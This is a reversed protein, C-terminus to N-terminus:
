KIWCCWSIGTTVKHTWLCYNNHDMPVVACHLTCDLPVSFPLKRRPTSWTFSSVTAKLAQQPKSIWVPQSTIQSTVQRTQSMNSSRNKNPKTQNNKLKSGKDKQWKSQVRSTVSKKKKSQGVQAMVKATAKWYFQMNQEEKRYTLSTYRLLGERSTLQLGTEKVRPVAAKSLCRKWYGKTHPLSGGGRWSFAFSIGTTSNLRTATKTGIMKMTEKHSKWMKRAGAIDVICGVSWPKTSCLIKNKCIHSWSYSEFCTIAYIFQSANIRTPEKFSRGTTLKRCKSEKKKKQHLTIQAKTDAQSTTGSGLHHLKPTFM